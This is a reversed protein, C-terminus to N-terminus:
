RLLTVAGQLTMTKGEELYAAYEITYFYTGEACDQGQKRGNWGSIIDNSEFVIDGWRNFIIIRYRVINVADPKFVDNYGDSNPTFVNPIEFSPPCADVFITDSAYCSAQKVEVWYVGEQQVHFSSSHSLDQWRYSDFSGPDLILSGDFSICSDLGLKPEPLPDATIHAGFRVSVCGNSDTVVVWISDEQYITLSDGSSGDYWQYVMFGPKAYITVSTDECFSTDRLQADPLPPETVLISDVGSCISDSVLVTYWGAALGSIDAVTDGNSWLYSYIGGPGQVELDISGDSYANCSTPTSTIDLGLRCYVIISDYVTCNTDYSVTVYYVGPSSVSYTPSTSGNDWLYSTGSGGNFNVTTLILPTGKILFTDDPLGYVYSPANNFIWGDNNSIDSSNAGAYFIASGGTKIDRMHIFDGSVTGTDKIIEAQNGESTSELRVPFCNNGRVWLYENITQPYNIDLQYFNDPFFTLSDFTNKGYIRADNHIIVHNFSCSMQSTRILSAGLPNVFEVNHYELDNGTQNDMGSPNLFRIKSTGANFSMNTGDMIWSFQSSSRLDVISGSLSLGRTEDYDSDFINCSIYNGQTNLIGKRLHIDSSTKLSDLLSWSGNGDFYVSYPFTLGASFITTNLSDSKFYWYAGLLNQMATIFRLNGYISIDLNGRIEPIGSAGTWDMNACEAKQRIMVTDGAAIFSNGDFFVNDVYTPICAGSAGGSSYSWHTSDHWHGTGNVWYLNSSPTTIIQWNSNNGLDMSNEAIFHAGGQAHIGLLKVFDIRLTDGFKEIYAQQSNSQSAISIKEFCNGQAILTNLQQQRGHELSYNSAPSFVLTDYINDGRISASSAFSVVKFSCPEPSSNLFNYVDPTEFLVKYFFLTDKAANVFSGGSGTFRIVSSDALVVTSDADLMWGGFYIEIDSSRIDLYKHTNKDSLFVPIRMTSQNTELSGSIFEFECNFCDMALTDMLTWGGDHHNFRMTNHFVQGASSITKGLTDALFSIEGKFENQMIPSFLLSGYIRLSITDGSWFLPTDATQIWSMDRCMIRSFSNYVTDRTTLFSNDDFIVNDKPSPLCAGATGGSTLSWHSTDAWDGSGNVWYLDVGIRSDVKWGDTNGLDVSEYAVFISDPISHIDQFIIQYVKSTDTGGVFVAEGGVSDTELLIPDNCEGNAILHNIYQNTSKQISYRHGKTLILSDCITSGSISGDAMFRIRNFTTGNKRIIGYGETNEFLINHFSLASGNTINMITNCEKFIIESTGANLTLNIGNVDMVVEAVCPASQISIKSSGLSLERVSTKETLFRLCSVNQGNTNLHGKTHLINQGSVTFDDLFIWEGGAGKFEVYQVFTHGAMKITHGLTEAEFHVPGAINFEMVPQLEVSGYIHLTKDASGLFTPNDVYAIWKIDRCYSHTKSLIVSDTPNNFSNLDFIVNDYKTPPCAGSPGGSSASWNTSDNWIGTGDVWYLTRPVPPTFQWGTNNGLDTCAIADFFAGGSAQIGKLECSEVELSGSTKVFNVFASSSRIQIPELCHGVAKLSDIFTHTTQQAFYYVKGKTLILDGYTNNGYITANNASELRNFSINVASLTSTGQSSTFFLNYYAVSGGGSSIFTADPSGMLIRSTGANLTLGTKNVTWYAYAYIKSSGLNLNRTFAYNSNFQGCRITQGNTNLTGEKFHVENSGVNLSDLLTWEGGGGNFFVNRFLAHGATKVQNGSNNALFHIPSNLFLSLEKRLNLSGYFEIKTTGPSNFAPAYAAQSCDFNRCTIISLNLQVAQGSATFSNADFHVDDYPSPVTFHTLSGGSTTAWHNIDSWDGSGGVWYYDAAFSSAQLTFLLILGLLASRMKHLAKTSNMLRPIFLGRALGPLRGFAIFLCWLAKFLHIQM